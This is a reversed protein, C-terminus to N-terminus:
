IILHKFNMNFPIKKMLKKKSPQKFETTIAGLEEFKRKKTGNSNM